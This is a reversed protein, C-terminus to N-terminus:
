MFSIYLLRSECVRIYTSLYDSEVVRWVFNKKKRIIIRMIRTIRIRILLPLLIMMMKMIMMMMVMVMVMVIVIVIYLIIM